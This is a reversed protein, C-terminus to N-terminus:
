KRQLPWRGLRVVGHAALRAIGHACPLRRRRRFKIRRGWSSGVLVVEGSWRGTAILSEFQPTRIGITRYRWRYGNPWSPTKRTGPLSVVPAPLGTKLSEAPPPVPQERPLKFEPVRVAALEARKGMM